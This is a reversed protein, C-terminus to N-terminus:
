CGINATVIVDPQESMLGNLKIRVLIRLQGRVNLALASNYIDYCYTGGNVLNTLWAVLRIARKHCCYPTVAQPAAAFIVILFRVFSLVLARLYPNLAALL